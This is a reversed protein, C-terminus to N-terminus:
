LENILDTRSKQEKECSRKKKFDSSITNEKVTGEKKEKKSKSGKTLAALILNEKVTVSIPIPVSM